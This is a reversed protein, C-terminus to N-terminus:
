RVCGHAMDETRICHAGVVEVDNAGIHVCGLADSRHLDRRVNEPRLNLGTHRSGVVLLEEHVLRLVPADSCVVARTRARAHM